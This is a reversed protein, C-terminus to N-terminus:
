EEPESEESSDADQANQAFVEGPTPERLVQVVDIGRNQADQEPVQVALESEPDVVHEDLKVRVLRERDDADTQVEVGQKNRDM